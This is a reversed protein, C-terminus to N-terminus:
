LRVVQTAELHLFIAYPKVAALPSRFYKYHPSKLSALTNRSLHLHYPSHFVLLRPRVYDEAGLQFGCSALKLMYLAVANM